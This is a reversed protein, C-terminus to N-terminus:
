RGRNARSGGDILATGGTEVGTVPPPQSGRGPQDVKPAETVPAEVVVPVPTPPVFVTVADPQQGVRNTLSSGGDVGPAVKPVGLERVDQRETDTSGQPLAEILLGIRAWAQPTMPTSGMQRVASARNAQLFTRGQPTLVALLGHGGMRIQTGSGEDYSIRNIETGRVSATTTPTKVQFDGRAGPLRDVQAKVEGTKLLLRSRTSLGSVNIKDLALLTMSQVEVLSGDPFGLAARAKFGTHITDGEALRSGAVAPEWAATGRQVEVKGKLEALVVTYEAAWASSWACAGMVLVALIRLTRSHM